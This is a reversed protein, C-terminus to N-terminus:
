ATAFDRAIFAATGEDFGAMSECSAFALFAFLMNNLLKKSM